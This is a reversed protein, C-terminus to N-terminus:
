ETPSDFIKQKSDHILDLLSIWCFSFEAYKRGNYGSDKWGSILPCFLSQRIEISIWFFRSSSFYYIPLTDKINRAAKPNTRQIICFWSYRTVMIPLFHTSSSRCQMCNTIHVCNAHFDKSKNFNGEKESTNFIRTRSLDLKCLHMMSKFKARSFEEKRNWYM